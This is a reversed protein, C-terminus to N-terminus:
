LKTALKWMGTSYCGCIVKARRLLRVSVWVHGFILFPTDNQISLMPVSQTHPTLAHPRLVLLNNILLVRADREKPDCSSLFLSQCFPGVASLLANLTLRKRLFKVIDPYRQWSMCVDSIETLVKRYFRASEALNTEKSSYSRWLRVKVSIAWSADPRAPAWQLCFIRM